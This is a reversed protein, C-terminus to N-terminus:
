AHVIDIMWMNLRGLWRGYWPLSDVDAKHLNRLVKETGEAQERTGVVIQQYPGYVVTWQFKSDRIIM